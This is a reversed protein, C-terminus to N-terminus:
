DDTANGDDGNVAFNGTARGAATGTGTSRGAATNTAANRGRVTEFRRGEFVVTTGQSEPFYRPAFYRGPFYRRPFM